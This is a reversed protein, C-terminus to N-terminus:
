SIEPETYRNDSFSHYNYKTQKEDTIRQCETHNSWICDFGFVFEGTMIEIICLRSFLRATEKELRKKTQGKFTKNDM